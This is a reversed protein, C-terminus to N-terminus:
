RGIGKERYQKNVAAAPATQLSGRDYKKSPKCM